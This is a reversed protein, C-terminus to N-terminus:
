RIASAREIAVKYLVRVEGPQRYPYQAQGLYKQSLKNIHDDAGKETIDVVRGRVELYRYPNEPDPISIAVRPDRRVNRDKVRGRASNFYVFQGDYDLWVPTAQPSGDPMLTALIGFAKKTFLDLHTEPVKASM